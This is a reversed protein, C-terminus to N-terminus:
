LNHAPELDHLASVMSHARQGGAGCRGGGFATTNSSNGLAGIEVIQSRQQYLSQLGRNRCPAARMAQVVPAHPWIESKVASQSRAHLTGACPLRPPPLSLTRRTPGSQHHARRSRPPPRPSLDRHARRSRLFFAPQCLPQRPRTQGRRAAGAGATAKGARSAFGCGAGYGADALTTPDAGAVALNERAQEIM